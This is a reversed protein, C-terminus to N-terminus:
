NYLTQFISLFFVLLGNIFANFFMHTEAPIANTSPLSEAKARHFHQAHTLQLSTM